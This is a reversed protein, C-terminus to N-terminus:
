QASLEDSVDKASADKSEYLYAAHCAVCTQAVQGFAEALKAARQKELGDALGALVNARQILQEQLVYIAEPVREDAPVAEPNAPRELWPQDKIVRAFESAGETDLFIISWMLVTMDDGHARMTKRIKERAALPLYTSTPMKASAPRAAKNSQGQGQGSSTQCAALGFALLMGPAIWRTLFKM